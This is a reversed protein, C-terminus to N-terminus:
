PLRRSSMLDHSTTPAPPFPAMQGDPALLFTRADRVVVDGAPRGLAAAAIGAGAIRHADRVLGVRFLSRTETAMDGDGARLVTRTAPAIALATMCVAINTVDDSTVAAIARARSARVRRLLARDSGDGLLVPIGHRPAHRVGAAEGDREVAVVAVGAERLRVCLRVGVQGLGVVVVHGRRPMARRGAIAVLRRDLLRNVLGATFIAAFALGAFMLVGSVLAVGDSAHDLRPNPGVTVLTRMGLAFARAPREGLAAIALAADALSVVALGAVGAVLTRASPEVPHAIAALRDIVRRLPGRRPPRDFRVGGHGDGRVVCDRAAPGPTRVALVDDGLCAAALPAAVLDAMSLVICGRVAGALQAAITRDFLTVVLRADPHMHAALLALRLAYADDRSVIAVARPRRLVARQFEADSAPTLWITTAGAQGLDRVVAATLEGDGAVLVDVAVERDTAIV